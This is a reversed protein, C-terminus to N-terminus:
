HRRLGAFADPAVARSFYYGQAEDCRQEKLFTLEEATEVGEAVVRHGLSKGLSIVARVIATDVPAATIGRVFSQDIKLAAVPFTRLYSLSSYGTGFDDIALQVGMDKLTQLAVVTSQVHQMLTSETLELELWRPDLGTERLVTAVHALFAPDRLEVASINVGVTIPKRGEEMWARAQTCAEVLVWRGIPVMLGCDAAVPVFDGPLTLGREPHMWRVLAEAGAIEGTHLDVRPQYHLVFEGRDIARHLGAEIRQREVARVNMRPEFFRYRQRDTTKAQYMAQDACRILLEPSTADDPYISIGITATLHLPQHEAEHPPAMASEISHAARAADETHDIVPLLVVFEDGGHRSVTDSCRLCTVLRQAVEQLVQDGKLHGLSDNVRKFRDLDVFLVALRHSNRRALAIAQAMRDLLLLRNPLNTLPDHQSVHALEYTRGVQGGLAVLLREDDDTFSCGGRGVLSIWGHVHAASAVPAILFAPVTARSGSGGPSEPEGVLSDVRLTRRESVVTHLTGNVIHRPEVRMGTTGDSSVLRQVVAGSRDVIGLTVSSAAFLDRAADCVMALLRDSNQESAFDLGINILARLRANVAQL